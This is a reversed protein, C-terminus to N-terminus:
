RSGVLTRGDHHRVAPGGTLDRRIYELADHVRVAFVEDMKADVEPLTMWCVEAAEATPRLEGGVVDCRFVLALIGQDVNKYLGTLALPVVDAGTEEWVERVLGAEIEEDPELVGGPPQWEGTDRRRIALVRLDADVVIAAVSVSHGALPDM